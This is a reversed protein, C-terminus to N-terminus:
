LNLPSLVVKIRRWSKANCKEDNRAHRLPLPPQLPAQFIEHHNRQNRKSMKEVKAQNKEAMDKFSAFIDFSFIANKRQRLIPSKLFKRGGQVALRVEVADVDVVGEEVTDDAVGNLRVLEHLPEGNIEIAYFLVHV